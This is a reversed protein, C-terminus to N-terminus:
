TVTILDHATWVFKSAKLSLSETTSLTSGSDAGLQPHTPSHSLYSDHFFQKSPSVSWGQCLLSYESYTCYSYIQRYKSLKNERQLWRQYSNCFSHSVLVVYPWLHLSPVTFTIKMYSVLGSLCVPPPCVSFSLSYLGNIYSWLFIFNDNM